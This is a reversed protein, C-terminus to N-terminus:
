KAFVDQFLTSGAPVPGAADSRRSVIFHIRVLRAGMVWSDAEAGSGHEWLKRLGGTSCPREAAVPFSLRFPRTAAGEEEHGEHGEHVRRRGGSM